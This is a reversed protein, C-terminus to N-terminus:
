IAAPFRVLELPEGKADLANKWISWGKLAVKNGGRDGHLNFTKLDFHRGQSPEDSLGAVFIAYDVGANSEVITFDGPQAAGSEIAARHDPIVRFDMGYSLCVISPVGLNGPSWANLWYPARPGTLIVVPFYQQNGIAVIAWETERHIAGRILEGPKCEELWKAKPLVKEDLVPM